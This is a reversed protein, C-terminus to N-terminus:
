ANAQQSRVEALDQYISLWLPKVQRWSFREASNRGANVLKELKEPAELLTAVASAMADPNTPPVLLADEDDRVLYPVGGVATSVVAVGSAWAELVSNPTNDVRSPNLMIHASAYLEVMAQLELRGPFTVADALDLQRAQVELNQREPGSGAITLRANPWHRHIQAFANLATSIDYLAELNRTVILHPGTSIPKRLTLDATAKFRDLDVINPVIIVPLDYREFLEALFQSPVALIKAQRLIPLVIRAQQQLFAGANGGRYNIIAPVGQLRSIILAPAAFLHWAWGSNAMIHTVDARRTAQWLRMLYPILRFVARLGPLRGAWQPRYPPNVQVLDVTLGEQKLLQALQRTQNAMGGSPPPLPGILTLHLSTQSEM